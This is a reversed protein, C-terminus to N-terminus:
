CYWSVFQVEPLEDNLNETAPTESRSPTGHAIARQLINHLLGRLLAHAPHNDHVFRLRLDARVLERFVPVQVLAQQPFITVEHVKPSHGAVALGKQELELCSFLPM